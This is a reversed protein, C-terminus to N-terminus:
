FSYVIQKVYNHHVFMIHYKHITVINTFDPMIKNYKIEKIIKSTSQVLHLRCLIVIM